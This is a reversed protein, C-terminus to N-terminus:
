AYSSFKDHVRALFHANSRIANCLVGPVFSRAQSRARNSMYMARDKQFIATAKKLTLRAEYMMNLSYRRRPLSAVCSCCRLKPQARTMAACPWTSTLLGVAAACVCPGRFLALRCEWADICDALALPRVHVATCVYLVVFVNLHM